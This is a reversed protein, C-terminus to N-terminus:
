TMKRATIAIWALLSSFCLIGRFNVIEREIFYIAVFFLCSLGFFLWDSRVNYAKLEDVSTVDRTDSPAKQGATHSLDM